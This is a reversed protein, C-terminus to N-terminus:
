LGSCGWCPISDKRIYESMDLASDKRQCDTVPNSQICEKGQELSPSPTPTPTPVISVSPCSSAPEAPAAPMATVNVNIPEHRSQIKQNRIEEDIENRLQKVIKNTTRAVDDNYDTSSESPASPTTPKSPASPASPASPTTPVKNGSSDTSSHCKYESDPDITILSLIYDTFPNLNKSYFGENTLYINLILIGIFFILLYVWSLHKM